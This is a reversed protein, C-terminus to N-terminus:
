DCRFRALVEPGRVELGADLEALGEAIADDAACGAPGSASADAAGAALDAVDEPLGRDQPSEGVTMVAKGRRYRADDMLTDVTSGQSDRLAAAALRRRAPKTYTGSTALDRGAFAGTQELEGSVAGQEGDPAVAPSVEDSVFDDGQDGVGRVDDGVRVEGVVVRACGAGCEFSAQGGFGGRFQEVAVEGADLVLGRLM